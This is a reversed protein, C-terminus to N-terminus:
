GAPFLEVENVAIHGPAQATGVSSAPAQSIWLVVLSYSKTPSLLKIRTRKKAATLSHSIAVWAKDTISSPATHANSGYVQVHMGPTSTILELASLKRSSGLKVLVGVAMRPAKDPEVQATWATSTDGDITLSPDGFGSAAYNYPNYTSAANTDLLIASPKSEAGEGGSGESPTTSAPTTPTTAEPTTPTTTPTVPIKPPLVAKVPPTTPVIPTTNPTVAPTTPTSTVPPALAVAITKTRHTSSKGLAAVAAGAALLVLVATAALIATISRWGGSSLSGPAVAGCHLCWDQDPSM